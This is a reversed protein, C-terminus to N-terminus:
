RTLLAQDFEQGTADIAHLLLQGATAEVYVFHIVDTSFATFSSSGVPTVPAGGGGTVLYTVGRQPVSREYDHDHGSLVLAVGRREYVPVLWRRSDADSGHTGSSFPPRHGYVVTWPQRTAALDADVWAALASSAEEDDLAVFHVPGRDFSYSREDGPLAFAARLPAGADTEVDHNGASPYAPVHALLPAYVAFFHDELEAATGHPLAVDGTHVILDYQVTALQRALALQDSDGSGSDGFAVFRLPQGPLDTHFSARAVVTADASRVEYCVTSGAPLGDLRAAWLAGDRGAPVGNVTYGDGGAAFLVAASRDTVLQLYPPRAFGVPATDCGAFADAFPQRPALPHSLDGTKEAALRGYEDLSSQCAAVLPLLTLAAAKRM